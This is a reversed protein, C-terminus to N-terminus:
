FIRLRSLIVKIFFYIRFEQCKTRAREHYLIEKYRLSADYCRKTANTSVKNDSLNLEKRTRAKYAPPSNACLYLIISYVTLYQQADMQAQIKVSPIEM